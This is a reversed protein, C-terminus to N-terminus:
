TPSVLAVLRLKGTDRQFAQKLQDMSRLEFSRSKRAATASRGPKQAANGTVPNLGFLM